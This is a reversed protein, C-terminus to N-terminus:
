QQGGYDGKQAVQVKSRALRQEGLLTGEEVMESPCVRLDAGAIELGTYARLWSGQARKAGIGRRGSGQARLGRQM